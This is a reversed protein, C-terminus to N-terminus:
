QGNTFAIGSVAVGVRQGVSKANAVAVAGAIKVPKQRLQAGAVAWAAAANHPNTDVIEGPEPLLKSMRRM